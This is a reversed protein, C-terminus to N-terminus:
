ILQALRGRLAERDIKGSVTRPLTDTYLILPDIGLPQVSTRLEDLLARTDIDICPVVAIAVRETASNTQVSLVAVDDVGHHAAVVREIERPMLTVGEHRLLHKARELVYLNRNEDLRGLDGTHLWGGSVAVSGHPQTTCYGRMVMAGRVWIEGAMGTPVECGSEDMIRVQVSPLLMGSCGPHSALQEASIMSISGCTETMGYGTGVNVHPLSSAIAELLSTHLATGHIGISALSSVDMDPRLSRLLDKLVTVSAGAISRVKERDVLTLATEVNWKSLLVIKGAIYPMLLLQAYGAIHSLPALLLTCPPLHISTAASRTTAPGRPNRASQLAAGLMMNMLGTTLNRHTLVVGKPRGTTGSTFAILAEEDAAPSSLPAALTNSSREAAAILASMQLCGEAELDDGQTAALVCPISHTANRFRALQERGVILCHCRSQELCERAKEGDLQAHVLVPVAGALSIALFYVVWQPSNELWLAVRAGRPMAIERHLARACARAQTFASEYSLRTDGDIVFERPGFTAAKEYIDLLTQPGRPFVKCAMGEVLEDRLEFPSGAQTLRRTINDM